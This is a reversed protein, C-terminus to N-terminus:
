EVGMLGEQVSKLSLDHVTGTLDYNEFIENIAWLLAEVDVKTLEMSCVIADSQVEVEEEFEVQDIDVVQESTLRSKVAREYRQQKSMGLIREVQAGVPKRAQVIRQEKFFKQVKKCDEEYTKRQEPTAEMLDKRPPQKFWWKMFETLDKVTFEATSKGIKRAYEIIPEPRGM